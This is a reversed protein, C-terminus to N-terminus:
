RDFIFKRPKWYEAMKEQATAIRELLAIVNPLDTESPADTNEVPAEKKEVKKPTSLEHYNDFSNSRKIFSITASSRGSIKETDVGNFGMDLLKKIRDYEPKKM